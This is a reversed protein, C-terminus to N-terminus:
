RLCELEGERQSAVIREAHEEVALAQQVLRINAGGGRILVEDIDRDLFALVLQQDLDALLRSPPFSVDIWRFQRCYKVKFRAPRGTM